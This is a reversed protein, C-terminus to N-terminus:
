SNSARQFCHPPPRMNLIALLTTTQQLLGEIQCQSDKLARQLSDLRQLIEEPVAVTPEIKEMQKSSM